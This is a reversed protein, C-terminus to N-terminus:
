TIVFSASLDNPVRAVSILIVLSKNQITLVVQSLEISNCVGAVLKDLFGSVNGPCSEM